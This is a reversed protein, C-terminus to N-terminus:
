GREGLRDLARSCVEGFAKLLQANLPEFLIARVAAAHGPAAVALKAMGADTLRAVQGRKDDPAPEREVWGAEELRDIAHSIRSPSAWPAAALETMRLRRGPAESLMALVQYYTHPMGADRRLERDLHETLLGTLQLYARWVRQEEDSLWPDAPITM